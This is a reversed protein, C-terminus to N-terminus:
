KWFLDLCVYTFQLGKREIISQLQLSVFSMVELKSLAESCISNHTGILAQHSNRELFEIRCKLVKQLWRMAKLQNSSSEGLLRDAVNFVIHSSFYFIVVKIWDPLHPKYVFSAFRWNNVVYRATEMRLYTDFILIPSALLCHYICYTFRNRYKSSLFTVM